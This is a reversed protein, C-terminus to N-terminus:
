CGLEFWSEGFYLNILLSIGNINYKRM